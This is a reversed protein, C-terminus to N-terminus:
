LLLPSHKTYVIENKLNQYSQSVNEATNRVHRLIIWVAAGIVPGSTCGVPLIAAGMAFFNFLDIHPRIKIIEKYETNQHEVTTTKETPWQCLLSFPPPTEQEFGPDLCPKKGTESASLRYFHTDPNFVTICVKSPGHATIPCTRQSLDYCWTEFAM